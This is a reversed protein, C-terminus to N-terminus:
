TAAAIRRSRNMAVSLFNRPIGYNVATEQLQRVLTWARAAAANCSRPRTSGPNNHIPNIRTIRASWPTIAMWPSRFHSLEDLVAPNPNSITSVNEIFVPRAQAVGVMDLIALLCRELNNM